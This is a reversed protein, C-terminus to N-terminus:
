YRNVQVTCTGTSRWDWDIANGFAAIVNGNQFLLQVPIGVLATFLFFVFVLFLYIFLFVFVLHFLALFLGSFFSSKMKAKKNKKKFEHKKEEMKM